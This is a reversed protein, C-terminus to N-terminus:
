NRTYLVPWSYETRVPVGLRTPPSFRVRSAYEMLEDHMSPYPNSLIRVPHVRGEEDILIHFVVEFQTVSTDELEEPWLLVPANVVSPLGDLESLGVTGWDVGIGDMVAEDGTGFNGYQGAPLTVDLSMLQLDLSLPQNVVNLPPGASSSSSQATVPPPPPPPPTYMAVERLVVREPPEPEYLSDLSALLLLLALLVAALLTALAHRKHVQSLM